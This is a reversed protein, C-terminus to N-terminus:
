FRSASKRSFIATSTWFNGNGMVLAVRDALAGTATALLLTLAILLRM